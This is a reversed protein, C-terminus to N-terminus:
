LPLRQFNELEKEGGGTLSGTSARCSKEKCTQLDHTSKTETNNKLLFFFTIFISMNLKQNKPEKVMTFYNCKQLFWIKLNYLSSKKKSQSQSPCKWDCNCLFLILLKSIISFSCCGFLKGNKIYFKGKSRKSDTDIILIKASQFGPNGSCFNVNIRSPYTSLKFFVISFNWSCSLVISFTKSCCFANSVNSSSSCFGIWITWSSSSSGFIWTRWRCFIIWFYEPGLGDHQRLLINRWTCQRVFELREWWVDIPTCDIIRGFDGDHKSSGRAWARGTLYIFTYTFYKKTITNNKMFVVTKDYIKIATFKIPM